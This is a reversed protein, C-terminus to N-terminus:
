LAIDFSLVKRDHCSMVFDVVQLIWEIRKNWPPPRNIRIYNELDGSGYYELEIGNTTILWINAM